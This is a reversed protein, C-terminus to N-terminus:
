KKDKHDNPYVLQNIIAYQDISNNLFNLHKRLYDVDSM